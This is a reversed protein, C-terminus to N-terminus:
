VNEGPTVPGASELQVSYNREGNFDGVYDLRTVFFPATIKSGDEFSLQMPAVAGSLALARVAADAASGLFIGQGTISVVDPVITEHTVRFGAVTTYTPPEDSNGLKLLFAPGKKAAEIKEAKM